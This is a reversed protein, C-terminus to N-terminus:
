SQLLDFPDQSLLIIHSKISCTYEIQNNNNFKM